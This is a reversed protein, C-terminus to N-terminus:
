AEELLSVWSRAEKEDTLIRIGTEGAIERYTAFIRGLGFQLGPTVLLARHSAPAFINKTALKKIDENSLEIDTVKRMDFIQNFEPRFDSHHILRDMHNLVDGVTLVGAAASLVMRREVDIFFDASM